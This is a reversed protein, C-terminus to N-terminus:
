INAAKLERKEMVYLIPWAISALSLIGAIGVPAILLPNGGPFFVVNIPWFTVIMSYFLTCSMVSNERNKLYCLVPTLTVSFGIMLFIGWFKQFPYNHGFFIIMPIFWLSFLVGSILCRKAFGFSSLKEWVYGRWFLEQGLNFFFNFSISTLFSLFYLALIFLIMNLTQSPLCLHYVQAAELLREKSFSSFPLSFLFGLVSVLLPMFAAFLFPKGAKNILRLEINEKKALLIAFIGPIWSYIGVAALNLEKEYLAYFSIKKFIFFTALAFALSAAYLMLLNKKFM